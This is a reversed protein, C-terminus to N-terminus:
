QVITGNELILDYRYGAGFDRNLGVVARVTITSGEPVFTSSTVVLDFDNKSGDQIHIWNRDMINPNIKVCKGSIQVTHGEYKKPDKVLESIKLTGKHVVTKETHTPIDEKQASVESAIPSPVPLKAANKAHDETVLNSVLIMRDFVRNYEKSEFDTKLLGGRYYYTEGKKIEQKRTAIWFHEGAETVNLYVYRETPLVENVVVTHFEDNLTQGSGTTVQTSPDTAFIGSNPTSNDENTVPSVVKPGRNCAIILFTALLTITSKYSTRM